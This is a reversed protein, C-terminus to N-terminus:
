KILEKLKSLASPKKEGDKWFRQKEAKGSRLTAESKLCVSAYYARLLGDPQGDIMGFKGPSCAMTTGLTVQVDIRDGFDGIDARALCFRWM